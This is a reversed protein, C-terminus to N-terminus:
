KRAYVLLLKIWLRAMLLCFIMLQLAEKLEDSIQTFTGQVTDKLELYNENQQQFFETLEAAM